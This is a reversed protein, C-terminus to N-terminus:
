STFSLILDKETINGAQDSSKINFKNEGDNLTTTYQFKGNGDVSIIRDNITVRADAETTGQITVQRQKSGFFSSGESPSDITLDPAKKDFTVTYEKTKQSVHGATDVAVASFINEGDNLEFEFSFNGDKDALSSEETGNFTIKVTAATESSGSITIKEQNTFDPYQNFRPPAPPTTDNSTIAKNSKGLDSIFATFRGLFPIGVFFLLAITAITLLVFLIAKKVNRREEVSVLRSYPSRM